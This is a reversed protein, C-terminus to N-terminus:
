LPQTRWASACSGILGRSRLYANDYESHNTILVTAGAKAAAAAMKKQSAIYEDWRAADSGFAGTLTGGNYAM